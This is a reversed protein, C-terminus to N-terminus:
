RSSRAYRTAVVAGVLVAAGAAALPAPNERAAAGAQEGLRGAQRRTTEATQAVKERTQERLEGAKGRVRTKVDTKAVLADITQALEERTVDADHRLRDREDTTKDTSTGSETSPSM